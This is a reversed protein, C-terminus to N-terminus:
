TCSTCLQMLVMYVDVGVNATYYESINPIVAM